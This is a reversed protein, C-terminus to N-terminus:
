TPMSFFTQDKGQNKATYMNKDARKILVETDEGQTFAAVGISVSVHVPGEAGPFFSHEKFMTRIREAVTIAGNTQTEPLILSFEEGGYRFASDTRRMCERIVVGMEVLVKDGEMHGFTDNFKKFDDIDLMLLALPKNYRHTRDLETTLKNYFLRSNFLQTLDDTISLERYRKESAQLAEEAKRRQEMEITLELIQRYSFLLLGLTLFAPLFVVIEDIGYQDYARTFIYLREYADLSHMIVTCIIAFVIVSILQGLSTGTIKKSNM